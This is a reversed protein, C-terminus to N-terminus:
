PLVMERLEHLALTKRTLTDFVVVVGDGLAKAVFRANIFGEGQMAVNAAYVLEDPYDRVPSSGGDVSDM